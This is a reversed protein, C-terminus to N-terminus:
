AFINGIQYGRSSFEVVRVVMVCLTMWWLNSFVFRSVATGKEHLNSRTQLQNEFGAINAEIVAITGESDPYSYWLCITKTL